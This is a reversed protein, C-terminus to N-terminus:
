PLRANPLAAHSVKLYEDLKARELAANDPKPGQSPRARGKRTRGVPKGKNRGVRRTTTAALTTRPGHDTSPPLDAAKQCQENLKRLEEARIARVTALGESFWEPTSETDLTQQGNDNTPQPNPEHASNESAPTPENPSNSHQGTAENPPGPEPTAENERIEVSLPGNVDSPLSLSRRHKRLEELSRSLGRGSALDYRRLLEGEHSDDFALIDPALAAIAIARARHAEAKLTLRETAREIIGALVERAEAADGPMMSDLQRIAAQNRFEKIETEAMETSIEWYWPRKEGKLKSSALFVLAVARDDLADFPQKGLLRVAKLKDSSLWPQGQNLVARLRAWEALLWECGILTSQLSLILDAPEDPDVEGGAFSTSPSRAFDYRKPTSPYFTLPGLRDKFLRRGLANVDQGETQGPVVGDSSIINANIRAAQARRARDQQWTCFVADDVLRREVDNGPLLCADWAARRDELVQPDEDALVPTKARVGHKVANLSSTEKGRETRPGTSKAANRRNAALRAASVTM